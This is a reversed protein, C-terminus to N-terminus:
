AGFADSPDAGDVSLVRYTDRLSVVELRAGGTLSEFGTLV